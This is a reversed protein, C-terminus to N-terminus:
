GLEFTTVGFIQKYPLKPAEGYYMKACGFMEKMGYYEALRMADLNAEPVDLYILDGNAYTSLAKFLEHAVSYDSAFLPGIKYGKRCKRVVGCGKIEKGETYKFAQSDEMFVWGKLFNKRDFGFHKKDFEAILNLDKPDIRTVRSDDYQEVRATSEMRLDRHSFKFGGRTYFPQMNFVGDMGIAAHKNLRKLLADRRYFWLETGLKKSRYEPKVIFFGMFGFNGDYSVISGSGIMEGDKELAVFGEPDTDWFAGADHLGPNWGEKAAWDVAVDLESRTMKRIKYGEPLM